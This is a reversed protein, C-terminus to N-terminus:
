RRKELRKESTILVDGEVDYIDCVSEKTQCLRLQIFITYPKKKLKEFFRDYMGKGFGIRKFNRDIGVIPVIAIDINKINKLSNGAEFIGFKKRKLPLRYPVMKFSKGEMFPIFILHKKRMKKLIKMIDAEFPLPIYFLIKSKLPFKQLEKDLEKMLKHNLYYRNPLRKKAKQICKKRFRDKTISM